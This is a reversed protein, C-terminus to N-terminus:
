TFNYPQSVSHTHQLILCAALLFLECSLLLLECNLLLLECSLLLLEIDLLVMKIDLLLLEVGLYLLVGDQLYTLCKTHYPLEAQVRLKKAQLYFLEAKESDM